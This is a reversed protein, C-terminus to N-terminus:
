LASYIWHLSKILFTIMGVPYSIINTIINIIHGEREWHYVAVFGESRYPIIIIHILKFKTLLYNGLTRQMRFRSVWDVEWVLLLDIDTFHQHFIFLIMSLIGFSLVVHSKFSDPMRILAYSLIVFVQEIEGINCSILWEKPFTHLLYLIWRIHLTIISLPSLNLCLRRIATRAGTMQNSHFVVGLIVMMKFFWKQSKFVYVRKLLHLDLTM